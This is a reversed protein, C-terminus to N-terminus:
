RIVQLNAASLASGAGDRAGGASSEGATAQLQEVMSDLVSLLESYFQHARAVSKRLAIAEALAVMVEELSSPSPDMQLVPDLEAKPKALKHSM